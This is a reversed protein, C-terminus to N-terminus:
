GLFSRLWYYLFKLYYYPYKVLRAHTLFSPYVLARAYKMLGPNFEYQYHSSILPVVNLYREGMRRMKSKSFVDNSGYYNREHQRYFYIPESFYYVLPENLCVFNIWFDEFLMGNPPPFNALLVQKRCFFMGKPLTRGLSIFRRKDRISQKRLELGLSSVVWHDHYIVDRTFFKPQLKTLDLYDDGDVFKIWEFQCQMIGHFTGLVKGVSPNKFYSINSHHQQYSRVIEETGDESGDDIIVVETEFESNQFVLISQLMEAIYREENKVISLFSIRIM